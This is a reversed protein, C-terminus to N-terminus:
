FACVDQFILYKNGFTFHTRKVTLATEFKTLRKAFGTHPNKVPPFLSSLGPDRTSLM